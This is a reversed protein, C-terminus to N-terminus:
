SAGAHNELEELRRGARGLAVLNGKQEYLILAQELCARGHEDRGGAIDVEALDALANAHYNLMDTQEALAVAERALEDAQVQRGRQALIRARVQRWLM